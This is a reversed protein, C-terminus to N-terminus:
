LLDELKEQQLVLRKTSKTAIAEAFIKVFECIALVGAMKMVTAVTKLFNKM